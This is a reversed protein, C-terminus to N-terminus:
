FLVRVLRTSNCKARARGRGFSYFLIRGRARMAATGSSRMVARRLEIRAVTSVPPVTGADAPEHWRGEPAPTLCRFSAPAESPAEGVFGRQM